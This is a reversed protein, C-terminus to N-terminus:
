GRSRLSAAVAAEAPTCGNAVTMQALKQARTRSDHSPSRAAGQISQAIWEVQADSLRAQVDWLEARLRQREAKLRKIRSLLEAETM